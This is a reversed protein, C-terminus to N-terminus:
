ARKATFQCHGAEPMSATMEIKVDIDLEDHITKCATLCAHKCPMRNAVDEGCKEKIQNFTRCEPLRYTLRQPNNEIIPLISFDQTSLYAIEIFRQPLLAFKLHGGTDDIAMKLVEYTRDPYEDGLKYTKQMWNRGFTEFVREGEADIEDGSKGEIAKSFEDVVKEATFEERLTQMMEPNLEFSYNNPVYLDNM